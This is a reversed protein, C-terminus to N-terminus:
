HKKGELLTNEVSTVSNPVRFQFQLAGYIHSKQSKVLKDNYIIKLM